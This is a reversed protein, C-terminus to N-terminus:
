EQAQSILNDAFSVRRVLFVANNAATFTKSLGAQKWNRYFSNGYFM